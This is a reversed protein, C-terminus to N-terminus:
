KPNNNPSKRTEYNKRFKWRMKITDLINGYVGIPIYKGAKNNIYSEPTYPWYQWEKLDWSYKKDKRDYAVFSQDKFDIWVEYEM